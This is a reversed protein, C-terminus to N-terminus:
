VRRTRGKAEFLRTFCMSVHDNYLIRCLSMFDLRGRGEKPGELSPTVWKQAQSDVQGLGTKKEVAREKLGKRTLKWILTGVDAEEKEKSDGSAPMVPVLVPLM